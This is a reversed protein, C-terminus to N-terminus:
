AGSMSHGKGRRTKGWLLFLFGAAIGEVLPFYFGRWTLPQVVSEMLFIALSALSFIGVQCASILWFAPWLRATSVLSRFVHELYVILVVLVLGVLLWSWVDAVRIELSTYFKERANSEFRDLSSVVLASLLADRAKMVVWFSLFISVAWLIYALVYELVNKNQNM